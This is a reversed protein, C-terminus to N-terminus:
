RSLRRSLRDRAAKRLNIVQQRRLGLIEAIRADQLPLEKWLAVLEDESMELAAALEALTAVGSLILVSLVDLDGEYRLNLLLAKRQLPRLEQIERWLARAFDLDQVQQGGDPVAADAVATLPEERLESPLDWARQLFDVLAEVLVPRQVGAFIEMLVDAHSQGAVASDVAIEGPVEDLAEAQGKWARIGGAPGAGAMWMAMRADSTLAYRVRNKLRAREPYKRRLFTGIANYTLTASYGRLDHIVDHREHVARLIELMRLDIGAALDDADADTLLTGSRRYRALILTMLPRVEEVILREIERDVNAGEAALLRHLARDCSAAADEEQPIVM